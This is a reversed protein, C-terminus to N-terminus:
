FPCQNWIKVFFHKLLKLELTYGEAGTRADNYPSTKHLVKQRWLMYQIKKYIFVIWSIYNPGLVFDSVPVCIM